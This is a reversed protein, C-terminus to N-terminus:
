HPSPPSLSFVIKSFLSSIKEEACSFLDIKRIEIRPFQLNRIETGIAAVRFVDPLQPNQIKLRVRWRRLRTFSKQTAVGALWFFCFGKPLFKISEFGWM